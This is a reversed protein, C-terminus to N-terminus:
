GAPFVGGGSFHYREFDAKSLYKGLYWAQRKVNKVIGMKSRCPKSGLVVHFICTKLPEIEVYYCSFKPVSVEAHLAV